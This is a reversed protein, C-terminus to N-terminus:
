QFATTAFKLQSYHCVTTATTIAKATKKSHFHRAKECKANILKPRNRSIAATQPPKPSQLKISISLKPKILNQFQKYVNKFILMKTLERHNRSIAATEATETSQSNISM